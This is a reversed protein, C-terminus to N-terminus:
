HTVCRPEFAVPANDSLVARVAVSLGHLGATMQFSPKLIVTIKQEVTKVNVAVAASM